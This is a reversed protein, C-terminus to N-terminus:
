QGPIEIKFRRMKAQMSTRAIGLRRASQSINGKCENIVEILCAREQERLRGKHDKRPGIFSLFLDNREIVDHDCFILTRELANRLERANGMWPHGRLAEIADDSLKPSRGEKALSALFHSALLEIDEPRERLSPIDVPIVHIRFLLDERFKGEKSMDRLNRNTACVLRFDADIEQQGGIRRIKKDELVRLLKTQMPLDMEGIEDLFLTGGCAQEILGPTREVAGTFAGREHGFLQSEIIGAPLAGCNIAVFPGRNRRSLRHVERAALEKGTGSEGTIMVPADSPAARAILAFIERMARSRGVMEGLKESNSPALEEADSFVRYYVTSRGITFSGQRDMAAQTVRTANVFLGNTSALDVIKVREGNMVLKCHRRSVYPDAVAVDCSAHHGIIIEAKAAGKKLPAQEPTRVVFEVRRTSLRKSAPDFALVQTAHPEAAITRVPVADVTTEIVLDWPGVAIRDGADIRAERTREGNVLMGNTSLDRVMLAGDRWEIRCHERSIDPDLLRITNESSRGISVPETGIPQRLLMKGARQLAIELM